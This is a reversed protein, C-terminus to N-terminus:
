LSLKFFLGISANPLPPRLSPVASAAMSKQEGDALPAERVHAEVVMAMEDDSFGGCKVLAFIISRCNDKCEKKELGWEKELGRRLAPISRPDCYQALARAASARNDPDEDNYLVWILGPALEPALEPMKLYALSRIFQVRDEKEAWDPETLWPILRQAIE